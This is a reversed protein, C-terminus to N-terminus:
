LDGDEGDIDGGPEMGIGALDLTGGNTGGDGEGEAGDFLAQEGMGGSGKDAPEFEGRVDAQDRAGMGALM